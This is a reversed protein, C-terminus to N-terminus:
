IEVPFGLYFIIIANYFSKQVGCFISLFIYIKPAQPNCWLPPLLGSWLFDSFNNIMFDKFNYDINKFKKNM